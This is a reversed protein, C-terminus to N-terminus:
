RRPAKNIKKLYGEIAERFHPPLDRSLSEMAKIREKEPLKGWIELSQLLKKRDVNGPGAGGVIRSDPLPQTSRPTSSAGGAQCAQCQKELEEIKKTLLDIVEKEKAQTKPGGRANGLRGEIDRMRRAIYGIDKDKWKEMEAKMLGAVVRYREPVDAVSHLLRHISQLGAEKMVLQNEAVARYFYYSAPDVVQEPRIAQLIALSEDHVRRNILAKALSLGLNARYFAPQSQDRLVAPVEALPLAAPNRAQELLRRAEADGLALTQAVRDLVPRSEAEDWIEKAKDLIAQDKTVSALWSMAQSRAEALSPGRILGFQPPERDAAAVSAVLCTVALVAGIIRRTRNM